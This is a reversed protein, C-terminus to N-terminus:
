RTPAGGGQPPEVVEVALRELLGLLVLCVVAAGLGWLIGRKFLPAVVFVGASSAAL